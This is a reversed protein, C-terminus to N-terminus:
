APITQVGVRGQDLGARLQKGGNLGRASDQRLSKDPFQKGAGPQSAWRLVGVFDPAYEKAVRLDAPEEVGFADQAASRPPHQCPTLHVGGSQPHRLLLLARM